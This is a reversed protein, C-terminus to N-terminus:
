AKAPAKDKSAPCEKKDGSKPCAGKDAPCGEKPAKPCCAPKEKDVPKADEARVAPVLAFAAVILVAILHKMIGIIYGYEGPICAGDKM